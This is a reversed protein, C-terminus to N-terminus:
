KKAASTKPKETAVKPKTEEKKPEAKVAKPAATKPVEPKAPAKPAEKKAPAATPKPAAPKPEAKPKADDKPTVDKLEEQEPKNDSTIKSKLKGMLSTDEETRKMQTIQKFKIGPLEAIAVGEKNKVVTVKVHHPPNKIGHVWLLKNLEEGILVSDAKMHKLVFERVATVAKKARKYRPVKQFEKRLPINYTRELDAM